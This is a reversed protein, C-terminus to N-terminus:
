EKVPVADWPGRVDVTMVCDPGTAACKALHPKKADLFYFSGPPLKTEKGDVELIVTGALIWGGHDSTHYHLGGAFGKDYKLYFHAPGKAPDGEADATYTGPRKPDAVWKLDSETLLIAGKKSADPSTAKADAPPVKAGPKPQAAPTASILALSVALVIRKM